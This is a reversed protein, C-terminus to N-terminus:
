ATSGESVAQSVTQPAKGTPCSETSCALFGGNGPSTMRRGGTRRVVADSGTRDGCFHGGPRRQQRMWSAAQPMERSAAPEKLSNLLDRRDFSEITPVSLGRLGFPLAKLPSHADAAKELVLVSSGALRLDCALFLGVPGAGAIIVDPLSTDPTRM